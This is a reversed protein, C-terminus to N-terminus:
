VKETTAKGLLGAPRFVLVAIIILLAVSLKLETGALYAGILASAPVVDSVLPLNANSLSSVSPLTTLTFLAVAGCLVSVAIASAVFFAHVHTLSM